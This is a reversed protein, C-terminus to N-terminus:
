FALDLPPFDRLRLQMAIELLLADGGGEGGGGGEAAGGRLTLAPRALEVGQLDLALGGFFAALGEAVAQANNNNNTTAAGGAAAGVLRRAGVRLQAGPVMVVEYRQGDGRWTGQYRVEGRSIAVTGGDFDFAAGKVATRSLTRLLPHGMFNGLDRASLTLTAEGTPHPAHANLALRRQTLLALYDLHLTGVRVDLSRATLELPTRWGAGLVRLGRFVGGALGQFDCEARVAISEHERLRQRLAFEIAAELLDATKKNTTKQPPTTHTHARTPMGRALNQQACKNDHAM